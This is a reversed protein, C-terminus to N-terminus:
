PRPLPRYWVYISAPNREFAIPANEKIADFPASKFNAAACHLIREARGNRVESVIGVHGFPEDVPKPYVVLCGPVAQALREFLQAGHTADAYVTDTSLWEGIGPAPPVSRRARGLAWAVYGSCDAAQVVAAPDQVDIGAAQALPRLEAQTQADLDSWAQAVHVPNAASPADGRQGGAGPWYVTQRGLMTRARELLHDISTPASM